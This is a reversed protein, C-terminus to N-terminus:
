VRRHVAVVYAPHRPDEPPTADWGGHVAVEVLGAGACWSLYDAPAVHRDGTFGAVLLGGPRLWDAVHGPLGPETEPDLYVVVNGAMVVLDVVGGLDATGVDFLDARLWTLAPAAARAEALMSADLDIGTVEHGRRALEIGVRGTGCGADVVRSPGRLLNDCFRAEGHVDLGRGALDAFRRAYERGRRGGTEALWRNRSTM